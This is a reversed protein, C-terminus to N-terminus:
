LEHPQLSNSMVSHSHAYTHAHVCVCGGVWVCVINTATSIVIALSFLVQSRASTLSCGSEVTLGLSAWSTFLVCQGLIASIRIFPIIEALGTEQVKGYVRFRQM